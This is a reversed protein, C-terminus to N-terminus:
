LAGVEKTATTDAALSVVGDTVDAWFDPWEWVTADNFPRGLADVLDNSDWEDPVTVTIVM